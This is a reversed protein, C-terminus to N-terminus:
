IQSYRDSADVILKAINKIHSGVHELAKAVYLIELSTSITRPDETMSKLLCNSVVNSEKNILEETDMLKLAITKDLKSYSEIVETLKHQALESTVSVEVYRRRPLGNGYALREAILAINKAEDGIHELYIVVKSAIIISQLDSAAPQQRAIATFCLRDIM